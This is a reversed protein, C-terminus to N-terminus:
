ALLSRPTGKSSCSLPFGVKKLWELVPPKQAKHIEYLQPDTDLLPRDTPAGTHSSFMKAGTTQPIMTLDSWSGTALVLTITSSAHLFHMDKGTYKKLEGLAKIFNVQYTSNLADILFFVVSIHHREIANRVASEDGPNFQLAEAGYQQVAKAQDDTRVLAYLKDYPPLKADELAALLSGGLYGSGGTILVNHSM